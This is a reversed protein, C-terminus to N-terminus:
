PSLNKGFFATECGGNWGIGNFPQLLGANIIQSPLGAKGILIGQQNVAPGEFGPCVDNGGARDGHRQVKGTCLMQYGTIGPQVLLRQWFAHQEHATSEDGKLKGM